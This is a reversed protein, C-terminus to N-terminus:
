KVDILEVDFVLMGQPAGKRGKYALEEPIWFRREEGVTMLQVGETWGPIVRNLPFRAPKGRSVSSDFGKGTTLWGTYHVTVVSEATPRKQGDGAKIVKSALGSPTKEADAPPGAVDAPAKPMPLQKPVGVIKTAGIEEMVEQYSAVGGGERHCHNRHCVTFGPPPNKVDFVVEESSMKTQGTATNAQTDKKAAPDSQNPQCGVLVLVSLAFISLSFIHKM